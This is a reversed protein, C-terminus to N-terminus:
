AAAAAPFQIEVRVGEPGTAFVQRIATGPVDREIFSIGNAKMRTVLARHDDGAFAVHDFPWAEGIRDPDVDGADRLHIVPRGHAYLWYGPFDFPPRPGIEFGLGDVFFARMADLDRARILVHDIRM